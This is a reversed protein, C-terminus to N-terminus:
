SSGANRMLQNMGIKKLIQLEETSIGTFDFKNININTNTVEMRHTESWDKPRRLALIKAAAWVNPPSYRQVKTVTVVGKYSHAVEEEYSFGVAAKFFANVVDGLAKERGRELADAFGEEKEKWKAFTASHIGMCTAIDGESMGLLAYRFVQELRGDWWKGRYKKEEQVPLNEQKKEEM